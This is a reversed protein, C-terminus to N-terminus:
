QHLNSNSYSFRFHKWVVDTSKSPMQCSFPNEREQGVHASLACTQSPTSKNKLYKDTRICLEFRIELVSAFSRSETITTAKLLSSSNSWHFCHPLYSLDRKEKHPKVDSSESVYGQRLPMRKGKVTGMQQLPEESFALPKPQIWLKPIWVWSEARREFSHFPLLVPWSTGVARNETRWTSYPSSAKEWAGGHFHGEFPHWVPLPSAALSTLNSQPVEDQHFSCTASPCCTATTQLWPSWTPFAPAGCPEDLPISSPLSGCASHTIVGLYLVYKASSHSWPQQSNSWSRSDPHFPCSNAALITYCHKQFHKSIMSQLQKTAPRILMNRFPAASPFKKCCKNSICYGKGQRLFSHASHNSSPVTPMWMHTSGLPPSAWPASSHSVM